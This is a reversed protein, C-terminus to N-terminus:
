IDTYANTESLFRQKPLTIPVQTVRVAYSELKLTQRLAWTNRWALTPLWRGGALRSVIKEQALTIAYCIYM